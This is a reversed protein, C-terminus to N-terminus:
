RPIAFSLIGSSYPAIDYQQYYINIMGNKIYYNEVRFNKSTLCCYNEFYFNNGNDINTQIQGNINDILSSVYNPDEFWRSLKIMEAENLDWTQSTRITNGHAGGTFRYEDIYLSVIPQYNYTVTVASVIEYTMTPYGNKKNYEYLKKAEEFLSTECEKQLATAKKYNYVNFKESNFIQPYEIKYNLIVTGKYTLNKQLIRKEVRIM